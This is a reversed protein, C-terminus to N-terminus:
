ARSAKAHKWIFRMCERGSKQVDGAFEFGSSIFLQVSAPNTKMVHAEVARVKLRACALERTQQLIKAGHGRGRRAPAVVVHVEALSESEKTYRIQAVPGSGPEELLYLAVDPSAINRAFWAEHDGWPVPESNLSSERVVPDNRWTWLLESDAPEVPRISM